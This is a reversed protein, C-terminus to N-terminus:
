SRSEMQGSDTTSPVLELYLDKVDQILRLVGYKPYIFGKAQRGLRKRLDADELLRLIADKLAAASRSPVLLGTVGNEVLDPVGGVNTAVVSKGAAMGEILSVPTGENLSSLVVFDLDAFIKELDFRWGLFRVTKEMGLASVKLELEKRLPGDGIILLRFDLNSSRLVEYIAELLYSLGKVPVLRGITGLVITEKSLGLEKRLEGKLTSCTLFRDLDLGLPIICVKKAPCIGRQILEKGQSESIAIVRDMIFWGLFREAALIATTKLWGFHESFMNGHFTEVIMPVRALRAAIGGFFRARMLHLHVLDPKEKKIIQYLQRFAKFDGVPNFGNRLTKVQILSSGDEGALFSMDGEYETLTGAVLQSRFIGENLGKTLLTVHHTAGGVSLRTIIRLIRISAM